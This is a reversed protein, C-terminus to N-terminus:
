IGAMGTVKVNNGCEETVVAKSQRYKGKQETKVRVHKYFDAWRETTTPLRKTTQAKRVKQPQTASDAYDLKPFHSHRLDM